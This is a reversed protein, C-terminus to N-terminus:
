LIINMKIYNTKSIKLYRHYYKFSYRNYELKSNNM